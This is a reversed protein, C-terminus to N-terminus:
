AKRCYRHRSSRGRELPRVFESIGNLVFEVALAALLIGLVRTVVHLGCPCLLRMLREAGLGIVFRPILFVLGPAAAVVALLDHFGTPCRADGSSQTRSRALSIFIPFVGFPDVVVLLTAFATLGFKLNAM